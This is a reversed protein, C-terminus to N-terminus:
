SAGTVAGNRQQRTQSGDPSLFVLASEEFQIRRSPAGEVYFLGKDNLPALVSPPRRGVKLQLRGDVLKAQYPGYGGEYRALAQAGVQPPPSLAELIWRNETLNPEGLPAGALRTLALQQARALAQTVPVAVDPTVGTGEWNKGTIPNIPTGSSIFVSLGDGLAAGGGPNAGGASPEGVVTARKAAQLTYAFSEAASATRGSTLVYLPVDLRRQGNIPVIPAEDSDPQGRTKFTNYIKAGDPVFHGILYGVMAPSGGGNDRLDFIVADTGAVLALAADAAQRAAQDGDAAFDAFGRMDIYGINGPLVRVAVFGYGGRQSLFPPPGSRAPAASASAPAPPTWNVAFHGDQPRLRETLAAAFDRPDTLKDYTGKKAEARLEAAIKTARAPDYFQADIAAALAEVKARPTIPTQASVASAMLAASLSLATLLKM